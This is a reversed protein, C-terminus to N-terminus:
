NSKQKKPAQRRRQRIRHCTRCQRSRKKCTYTNEPTYEHGSPCHTAKGIHRGHKIADAVNAKQTDWRLNVLRNDTRDDNNHCAVQGEIPKGNFVELVLRHISKQQASSDKYLSVKLYGNNNRIPNLTREKWRRTRGMSDKAERKLRRVRGQDSVEYSNEYGPIPKWIEQGSQHHQNSM